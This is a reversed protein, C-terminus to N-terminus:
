KGCCDEYRNEHSSFFAKKQNEEVASAKEVIVDAIMGKGRALEKYVQLTPVWVQGNEKMKHLLEKM